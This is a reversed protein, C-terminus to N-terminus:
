KMRDEESGQVILKSFAEIYEKRQEPNLMAMLKDNLVAPTLTLNIKHVNERAMKGTVQGSGELEGLKLFDISLVNIKLDAKGKGQLEAEGEKSVTVQLELEVKEVLFAPSETDTSALEEKIKTILEGLGINKVSDSM